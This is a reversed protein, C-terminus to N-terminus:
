RCLGAQKDATSCDGSASKPTSKSPAEQMGASSEQPHDAHKKGASIFYWSGAGGLTLLAILLAMIPAKSRGAGAGESNLLLPKLCESCVFDMGVSVEVTRRTDAITCNGFNSCKGSRGAISAM